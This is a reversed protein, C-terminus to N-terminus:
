GRGEVTMMVTTGAFTAPTAFMMTAVGRGTSSIKPVAEMRLAVWTKSIPPACAM